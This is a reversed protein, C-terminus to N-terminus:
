NKRLKLDVPASVNNTSFLYDELTVTGQHIAGTFSADIGAVTFSLKGTADATFDGALQEFQELDGSPRKEVWVIRMSWTGSGDGDFDWLSLLGSTVIEPNEWDDRPLGEYPLAEGNIEVLDFRCPEAPSPPTCLGSEVTINSILLVLEGQLTTYETSVAVTSPQPATAPATYLATRDDQVAVTGVSADDGATGNVSWNKVLNRIVESPRCEAILPALLDDNQVRECVVVSLSVTESPKVTASEPSLLAGTVLSWDSFHTTEVSVTGADADLEIEDHLEWFRESNQSAVRLLQPSSGLIQAPTFEFTVRVPSAFTVDEPGLRFAGGIKGHAHNAIPQISLTREAALAGAPVEIRLTGDASEITGGASGIVQTVAGGIPEGVATAVAEIPTEQPPPQEAPPPQEPPDQAPPKDDSSSSCGATLLILLGAALMTRMRRNHLSLSDGEAAANARFLKLHTM